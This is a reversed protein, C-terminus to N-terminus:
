IDQGIGSSRREQIPRFEDPGYARIATIVSMLRDTLAPIGLRAETMGGPRALM